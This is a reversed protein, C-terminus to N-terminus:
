DSSWILLWIVVVWDAMSDPRDTLEAASLGATNVMACPSRALTLANLATLELREVATAVTCACVWPAVEIELANVVSNCVTVWPWPSVPAAKAAVFAVIVLASLLMSANAFAEVMLPVFRSDEALVKLTTLLTSPEVVLTVM